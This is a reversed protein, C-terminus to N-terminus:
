VSIIHQKRKKGNERRHTETKSETDAGDKGKKKRRDTQM